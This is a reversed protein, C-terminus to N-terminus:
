ESKKKLSNMNLGLTMGFYRNKASLWPVDLCKTIDPNYELELYLLEKYEFGFGIIGGTTFKNFQDYITGEPVYRVVQGIIVNKYDLMYEGRIGAKFYPNIIFDFPSIKIDINGVANHFTVKYESSTTRTEEFSTFVIHENFGKQIYGIEPRISLYDTLKKEVNLFVCFGGKNGKWGNLYSEIESTYEWKENSVGSGIRLGFNDIIQGSTIRCIIMILSFFLIKKM